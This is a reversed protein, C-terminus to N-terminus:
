HAYRTGGSGGAGGPRRCTGSNVKLWAKGLERFSKQEWQALASCYRCSSARPGDQLYKGKVHKRIHTVWEADATDNGGGHVAGVPVLRVRDFAPVAFGGYATVPRLEGAEEVCGFPRAAAVWGSGDETCVRCAAAAGNVDYEERPTGYAPFHGNGEPNIETWASWYKTDFFYWTESASQLVTNTAIAEVTYPCPRGYAKLLAAIRAAGEFGGGLADLLSRQRSALGLSFIESNEFKSATPETQYPSQWDHYDRYGDLLSKAYFHFWCWDRGLVANYFRKDYLLHGGSFDYFETNDPGARVGQQAIDQLRAAYERILTEDGVAGDAEAAGSFAVIVNQAEERLLDGMEPVAKKGNRGAANQAEVLADLPGLMLERAQRRLLNPVGNTEYELALRIHELNLDGIRNLSEGQRRAAALAAADGANQLRNKVTIIRYLDAHFLVVMALALIAFALYLAVQGSKARFRDRPPM